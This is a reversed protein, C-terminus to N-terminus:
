RSEAGLRLADTESADIAIGVSGGGVNIARVDYIRREGRAVIPLRASFGANAALAREMEARDASDLLELNRASRTTSTPPKPPRRMPRTPM